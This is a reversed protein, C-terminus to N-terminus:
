SRVVTSGAAAVVALAFVLWGLVAYAAVIVAISKGTSWGKRVTLHLFIWVNIFGLVISALVSKLKDIKYHDALLIGAFIGVLINM